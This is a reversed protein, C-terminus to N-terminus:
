TFTPQNRHQRFYSPTLGTVKKFQNSLHAVSSYQLKYAIDSLSLKDYVLLEKVREIKQAIFYKEITVGQLGSFLNSLSTYDRNVKKSIYDSFNLKTLEDSFYILQYIAAKIKEILRNNKDEMIELGANKLAINILHWKVTSINDKLEVEGLEVTKYDLGLKDLEHKVMAKCRSSEM